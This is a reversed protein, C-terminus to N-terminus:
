LIGLPKAQKRPSQVRKTRRAATVVKRKKKKKKGSNKQKDNAETDSASDVVAPLSSVAMAGAVLVGGRRFRWKLSTSKTPSRRDTDPSSESGSRRAPTRRGRGRDRQLAALKKSCSRLLAEHTVARGSWHAELPGHCNCPIGTWIKQRLNAGLKVQVENSLEAATQSRSAQM